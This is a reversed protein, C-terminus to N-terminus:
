RGCKASYGIVLYRAAFCYAEVGISSQASLQHLWRSFAEESAAGAVAENGNRNSRRGSPGVELM